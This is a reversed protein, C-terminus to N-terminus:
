CANRPPPHGSRFQHRMYKAMSASRQPDRAAEFRDHIRALADGAWDGM